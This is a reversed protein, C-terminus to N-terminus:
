QVVSVKDGPNVGFTLPIGAPLKFGAGSVATPNSGFEVYCAADSHLVVAETASGFASSQQPSTTFTLQTQKVLPPMSIVPLIGNSGSKTIFKHETITLTAM